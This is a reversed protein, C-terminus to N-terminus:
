LRLVRGELLVGSIAAIKRKTMSDGWRDNVTASRSKSPNANNTEAVDSHSGLICAELILFGQSKRLFKLIESSRARLAAEIPLLVLESIKVSRRDEAYPRNSRLLRTSRAHPWPTLDRRSKMADQLDMVDFARPMWRFASLFIDTAGKPLM